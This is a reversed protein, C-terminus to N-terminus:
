KAFGPSRSIIFRKIEELEPVKWNKNWQQRIFKEVDKKVELPSTSGEFYGENEAKNILPDIMEHVEEESMANGDKKLTIYLDDAELIKTGKKVLFEEIFYDKSINM